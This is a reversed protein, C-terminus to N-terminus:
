NKLKLLSKLNHYFKLQEEESLRIRREIVKRNLSDQCDYIVKIEDKLGQDIFVDIIHGLNDSTYYQSAEALIGKDYMEANVKATKFNKFYKILVDKDLNKKNSSDLLPALLSIYQNSSIRSPSKSFKEIYINICNSINIYDKIMLVAHVMNSNLKM